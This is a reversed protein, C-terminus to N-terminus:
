DTFSTTQSIVGTFQISISYESRTNEDGSWDVSTILAQGELTKGASGAVGIKFAGTTGALLASIPNTISESIALDVLGTISATGTYEGYISEKASGTSDKTTVDIMDRSLNVSGSVQGSYYSSNFHGLFSTGNLAAM